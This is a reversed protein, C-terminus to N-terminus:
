VPQGDFRVAWFTQADIAGSQAAPNVRRLLAHTRQPMRHTDINHACFDMVAIGDAEIVPPYMATILDRYLLGNGVACIFGIYFIARRAYHEPWRRAFYRPSVLPWAALDNTMVSMGVMESGRLAVYKRVRIDTMVSRFEDPYMLHRQAALTDVDAFADAYMEWASAQFALGLSTLTDITTPPTATTTM